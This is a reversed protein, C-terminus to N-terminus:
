EPWRVRSTSSEYLRQEIAVAQAATHALGIFRVTELRDVASLSATWPLPPM